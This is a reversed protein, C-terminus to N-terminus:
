KMDFIGRDTKCKQYKRKDFTFEDLQIVSGEEGMPENDIEMIM